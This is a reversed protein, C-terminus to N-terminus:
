KQGAHDAEYKMVIVGDETSTAVYGISEYLKIARENTELVDLMVQRENLLGVTYATMFEFLQRGYGQGQYAPAIAGTLWMSGERRSILGYAAPKLALYGAYGYLNGQKNEPLYTNHYWDMQEAYTLEHQDHTMFERGSNRVKAIDVAHQFHELQKIRLGM